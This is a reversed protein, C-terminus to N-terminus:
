DKDIELLQVVPESTEDFELRDVPRWDLRVRRM